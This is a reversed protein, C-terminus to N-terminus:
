DPRRTNATAIFRLRPGFSSASFRVANFNSGSVNTAAAGEETEGKWVCRVTGDELDVMLTFLFTESTLTLLTFPSSWTAGDDDSLQVRISRSAGSAQEGTAHVTLQGVTDMDVGGDNGSGISPSGTDGTALNSNSSYEIFHGAPESGNKDVRPAGAAGQAVATVNDRLATMLSTTLAAGAAVAANSINTWLAM